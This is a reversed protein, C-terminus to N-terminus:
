SLLESDQEQHLEYMKICTTSQVWWLLRRRKSAMIHDTVGIGRCTIAKAEWEVSVLSSLEYLAVLYYDFASYVTLRQHLFEARTLM